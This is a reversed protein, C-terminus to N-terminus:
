WDSDGSFITVKELNINPTNGPKPPFITNKVISSGSFRLGNASKAHLILDHFTKFVNGYDHQHGAFVSILQISQQSWHDRYRRM